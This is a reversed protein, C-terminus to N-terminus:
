KETLPVEETSGYVTASSSFVITRVDHADMARLLNLTGGVNNHYYHLPKEVSEGVAKLGAFHIVADVTETGLVRDLASEDLLDARYFRAERGSLQQVRRLSEESSNALNDLVVVDHGAELLALTTHSGIFGTGGTVLIRM